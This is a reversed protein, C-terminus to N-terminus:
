AHLMTSDIEMGKRFSSDTLEAFGDEEFRRVWYQVSRPLDGLLKAAEPCTVGQAVLLVAHLRNDYRAEQTRHIEDQLALVM